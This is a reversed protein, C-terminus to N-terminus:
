NGRDSFRLINRYANRKGDHVTKHDVLDFYGKLSWVDPIIKEYVKILEQNLKAM